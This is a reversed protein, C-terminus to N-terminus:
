NLLVYHAGDDDAVVLALQRPQVGALRQLDRLGAIRRNGVGIVLDGPQLGAQAARSGARVSQVAVGAAGQNRLSLPLESFRVGALRPDIRAGDLTALPEPTLTASVERTGGDRLV